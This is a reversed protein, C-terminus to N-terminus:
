RLCTSLDLLCCGAWLSIVVATEPLSRCSSRRDLENQNGDSGVARTTAPNRAQSQKSLNISPCDSAVMRSAYLSDRQEPAAPEAVSQSLSSPPFAMKSIESM